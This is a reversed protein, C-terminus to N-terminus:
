ARLFHVAHDVGFRDPNRERQVRALYINHWRILDAIAIKTISRGAIQYSELDATARGELVAQIAALMKEAHTQQTGATAAYLDPEVFVTGHDVTFRETGLEVIAVWKWNGPLLPATDAKAVLVDHDKGNANQTATVQLKSNSSAASGVNHFGYKLRWGEDYPHDPISRTWEWTDGARLIAPVNTLTENHM